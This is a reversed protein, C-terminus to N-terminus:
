NATQWSDGCEEAERSVIVKWGLERVNHDEYYTRQYRWEPFLDRLIREIERADAEEHIACVELGYLDHLLDISGFHSLWAFGNEALAELVANRFEFLEAHFEFPKM